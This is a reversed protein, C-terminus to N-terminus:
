KADDYAAVSSADHDDHIMIDYSSTDNDDYCSLM